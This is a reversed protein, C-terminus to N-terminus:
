KLRGILASAEAKTMGRLWGEVTGSRQRMTAGLTKYSADMYRTGYGNRGLLALAYSVQKDTATNTTM